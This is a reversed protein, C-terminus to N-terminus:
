SLDLQRSIISGSASLLYFLVLPMPIAEAAAEAVEEDRRMPLLLSALRLYQVVEARWWSLDHHGLSRSM